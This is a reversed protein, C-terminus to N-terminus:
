GVTKLSGYLLVLYVGQLQKILRTGKGKFVILPKLKTGARATLVVTYHDKLSVSRADVHDVTISSPMDMWCATEDYIYEDM